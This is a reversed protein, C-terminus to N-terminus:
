HVHIYGAIMVNEQAAVYNLCNIVAEKVSFCPSCTKTHMM